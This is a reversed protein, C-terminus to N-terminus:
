QNFLHVFGSREFGRIGKIVYYYVGDTLVDGSNSFGKWCRECSMDPNNKFNETMFVLNGWRNFISLTYDVCENFLPAFVEFDWERNKLVDGGVVLVNPMELAPAPKVEAEKITDRRCGNADIITLKVFQNGGTTEPWIHVINPVTHEVSGDNFMDWQYTYPETGNSVLATFTNEWFCDTTAEFNPIPLEFIEFPRLITDRCGQDTTVILTLQYNGVNPLTTSPYNVDSNTQNFGGAGTLTWANTTISSPNLVSSFNNVSFNEGFCFNSNPAFNFNADPKPHVTIYNFLSATTDCGHITTATLTLSYTGANFYTHSPFQGNLNTGDGFNWAYTSIASGDPTSTTNLANVSLPQCGEFPNSGFNLVPRANVRVVKTLTSQCGNNSTASLTVNYTGWSPFNISPNNQGTPPVAGGFDWLYTNIADPPNINSNNTFAMTQGSCVSDASFALQPLPFVTVPLIITDTCGAQTNIVMQVNFTGSANYVHSPTAGSGSSGNGYSWNWNTIIDNQIQSADNFPLPIGQCVNIHTFNANLTGVTTYPVTITDSCGNSSIAVFTVNYTGPGPFTFVPSQNTSAGANGFVWNWQNITGNAPITSSDFFTQTLGCPGPLVFNAVPLPNVIVAQTLTDACGGPGTVILTANYSGHTPYVYIPNLMSSTDNQNGFNWLNSTITSGTNSSQNLFPMVSGACSPGAAFAATPISFITITKSVTDFCNDTSGVILQVNYTGPATYNATPNQQTSVNNAGFDWNWSNMNGPNQISSQDQFNVALGCPLPLAFDANIIPAVSVQTTTTDACGAPSIAIMTVTYTGAQSYTHTPNQVGTGTTGDGFNYQWNTITGNLVNTNDTFQVNGQCIDQGAVAATVITPQLLATLTAVCGLISTIECTYTVGNQPNAITIDKTNGVQVLNQDFWKYSSFGDPASLTASNDGQCYSINIQLPGCDAWLYGYGYHGSLTCDGTRAVITVAQGNYASLDLGVATWQRWRIQSQTIFGPINGAATVMYYTCPIINNQADYVALDFRPQQQVSHGPDQFVVAFQYNFLQSQPGVTFTYRLGEARAGTQRNGLRVANTTGPPFTPLQQNNVIIDFNGIPGGGPIDQGLPTVAQQVQNNNIVQPQGAAVTMFPNLTLVGSSPMTGHAVDWNSFDQQVFNANPCAPNLQAKVTTFVGGTALGLVVLLKKPLTPIM